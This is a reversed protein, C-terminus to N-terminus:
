KILKAFYLGVEVGVILVILLLSKKLDSFFYQNVPEIVEPKIKNEFTNIEVTVPTKVQVPSTIMQRNELLRIKRHYSALIKEKKTKKPM